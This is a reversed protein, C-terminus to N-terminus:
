TEPDGSTPEGWAVPVVQGTELEWFQIPGLSSSLASLGVRVLHTQHLQAVELQAL